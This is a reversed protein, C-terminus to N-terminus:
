IRLSGALRQLGTGLKSYAVAGTLQNDGFTALAGRIQSATTSGLEVVAVTHECLPALAIADAAHAVPAAQIVVHEYDTRLKAVVAAFRDSALLDATHADAEGLPLVTVGAQPWGTLADSVPISGALVAALGPTPGIVIKQSGGQGSTDADIYVVHRGTDAFSKALAMAIEPESRATLSTLLVTTAEGNRQLRTRLRRTEEVAGPRGIDIIGLIPVPATAHASGPIPAALVAELDNSTRLKRDTRDRVFAALGGLVLGALLGLALLRTSQPGSAGSPLEARDVVEARAAPAAGQEISELEAIFQRFQAVVTNAIDRAREASSDKVSVVILTTAPPSAATIKGRLEDVSMKLSLDDITRKAVNASTVLDLYSRVRQQAALGGQYSDNVSTGTAMSVYVSSAAVYNTPQSRSYGVAAFLCLILVGLILLWRRRAIHWYDILGM